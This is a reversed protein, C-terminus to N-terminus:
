FMELTQEKEDSTVFIGLPLAGCVSHTVVVFVRLKYEEMNSSSDLFALDKAQAVQLLILWVVINWLSEKLEDTIM